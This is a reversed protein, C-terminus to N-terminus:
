IIALPNQGSGNCMEGTQRFQHRVMMWRSEPEFEFRDLQVVEQKPVPEIEHVECCIPCAGMKSM